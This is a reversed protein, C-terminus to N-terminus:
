VASFSGFTLLVVEDRVLTAQAPPGHPSAVGGVEEDGAQGGDMAEQVVSEQCVIDLKHRDCVAM